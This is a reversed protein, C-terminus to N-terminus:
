QAKELILFDMGVCYFLAPIDFLHDGISSVLRRETEETALLLSEYVTRTLSVGNSHSFHYREEEIYTKLHNYIIRFSVISHLKATTTHLLLPTTIDNTEFKDQEGEM